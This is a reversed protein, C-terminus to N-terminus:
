PGPTAPVAAGGPTGPVPTPTVFIVNDYKLSHLLVRLTAQANTQATNLIGDELAGNVIEQEARARVQSELNPDPKTFFGTQRDYVQSKGNDLKSVLIEAPPMHITVTGSVVQVDADTLKSLDVGATVEGHAVFLIKDSTFPPLAGTSEATLVREVTYRATELRSLTQIQEVVSPGPTQIIVTPSVGIQPILRSLLSPFVSTSLFGIILVIVAAAALGWICGPSGFRRRPFGQGSGYKSREWNNAM